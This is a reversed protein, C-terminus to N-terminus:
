AQISEIDQAKVEVMARQNILEISLVFWLSNKKRTLVGEVGQMAGNRIRVKQGIALDPHPEASGKFLDSRLLDITADPIPEPGRAHGLLRLVGPTGLVSARERSGIRVFLYSPFLPLQVKVRQRNKWIREREYTPLFADVGRQLLQTACSKEHQPYTYVAYWQRLGLGNATQASALPFGLADPLAGTEMNQDMAAEQQVSDEAPNRNGASDCPKAM